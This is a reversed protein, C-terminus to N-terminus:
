LIVQLYLEKKFDRPNLRYIINHIIQIIINADGGWNKNVLYAFTSIGHVIAGYLKMPIKLGTATEKTIDYFYHIGYNQMDSGDITISLCDKNNKARFRKSYCFIRQKKVFKIHEKLRYRYKERKM